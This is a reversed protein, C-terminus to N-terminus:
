IVDGLWLLYVWMGLLRGFNVGDLGLVGCRGYFAFAFSDQDVATGFRWHLFGGDFALGLLRDDACESVENFGCRGAAAKLDSYMEIAWQGQAGAAGSPLRHTSRGIPRRRPPPALLPQM